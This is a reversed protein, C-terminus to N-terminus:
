GVFKTDAIDDSYCAATDRMGIELDFQLAQPALREHAYVGVITSLKLESIFVSNGSDRTQYPLAVPFEPKFRTPNDSFM